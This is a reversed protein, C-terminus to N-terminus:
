HDHRHHLDPYHPHKHRIPAHRHFHSHPEAFPGEHEHRHHDDHVHRHEHWLPEHTHDHEHRETLHLWLGIGMLVAAIALNFTPPEGMALAILAGIFPALSFYAGTRATGLHRLALIFLVLSLGIAVFGLVLALTAAPLSPLAVGRWLAIALNVTGAGLGKIMATVIPDASSVKRMLNNDIGWCVCAAAILAAGTDLRVGQGEWSLALAGLLIAAAGILLRRDVNERFVVWAIGMTALSELNLLLSGTAASTRSLGLMLLLPGFVGGFLIVAGLWFSDKLRVPAEQTARGSLQRGIFVAFLGVGAGIYLLGALSQADIDALMLKSLPSTAGFLTASGLALLVGAGLHIHPHSTM